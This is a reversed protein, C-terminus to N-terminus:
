KFIALGVAGFFLVVFIVAWVWGMGPNDHINQNIAAALHSKRGRKHRQPAYPDFVNPDPQRNRPRRTAMDVGKFQNHTARITAGDTACCSM